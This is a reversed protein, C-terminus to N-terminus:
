QNSRKELDAAAAYLLAAQGVYCRDDGGHALNLMTASIRMCKVIDAISYEPAEATRHGSPAKDDSTTLHNM